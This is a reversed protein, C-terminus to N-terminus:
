IFKNTRVLLLKLFHLLQKHRHQVGSVGKILPTLALSQSLQQWIHSIHGWNHKCQPRPFIFNRDLITTPDKELVQNRTAALETERTYKKQYISLFGLSLLFLFQIIQHLSFSVINYLLNGKIGFRLREFM